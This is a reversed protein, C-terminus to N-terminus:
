EIVGSAWLGMYYAKQYKYLLELQKQQMELVKTERSNILFITTEGQAFKLNENNLLFLYNNYMDKAQKMQQQLLNAETNYQYIKSEIQWAKNNRQWQADFQKLKTKQLEGRSERLLLPMKFQLGYKYNQNLAYNADGFSAYNNKSLLNGQANLTPLLNQQKYRREIQLQQLKYDYWLLQPHTTINTKMKDISQLSPPANLMATDPLYNSPLLTPQQNEKWVFQCLEYYATQLKQQAELQMMLFSQLQTFTEVTDAQARDGHIYSLSVINLRQQANGVYGSFISYLEYQVAWQWYALYAQVLLDNMILKKDQVSQKQMVKAQQLAARNKDILLGKLLQVEVGLYSSNGNSLESNAFAGGVQEIGTKVTAGLPTYYKLEGQAYNYYQVGKFEKQSSSAGLVPDFAGQESLLNADAQQTVLNAQQAVPHYRKVQAIFTDLTYVTTQQAHMTAAWMCLLCLIIRM